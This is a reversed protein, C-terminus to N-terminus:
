KILLFILLGLVAVNPISSSSLDTRRAWGSGVGGYGDFPRIRNGQAVDVDAHGGADTLPIRGMVYPQAYNPSVDRSPGGYYFIGDGNDPSAMAVIKPVTTPTDKEPTKSIAM